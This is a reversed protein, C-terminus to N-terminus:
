FSYSVFGGFFDLDKFYQRNVVDNKGGLYNTYNMGAQWVAPNQNFLFLDIPANQEAVDIVTASTILVGGGAARAMPGFDIIGGIVFGATYAGTNITPNKLIDAGDVRPDVFAAAAGTFEPSPLLAQGAVWTTNTGIWIGVEDIYHLESSNAVSYVNVFM